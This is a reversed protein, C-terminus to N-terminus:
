GNFEDVLLTRYNLALSVYNALLKWTKKGSLISVISSNVFDRSRFEKLIPCDLIFHKVNESVCLNCLTCNFNNNPFWPKWNLPLMETRAMFIFRIERLTLNDSFYKEGGWETKIEKYIPHFQGLMVSDLLDQKKKSVIYLYLDELAPKVSSVNFSDFQQLNGCQGAFDKIFRFWSHNNNVGIQMMIKSFRNDKLGLTHLIFSWHLKLTFLFLPERGTELLLMYNPTNYPMRFLKKIFFRLLKEVPEFEQFGWVQAAYCMISRAVSDFVRFYSDVNRSQLYFINKYVTNLGLKANALQADLHSGFKGTSTFKVGLYKYESVIEILEGRYYFKFSKKLRGKKRFVMVKSKNLNVRLDWLDCYDSLKDIMQQLILHDSAVFVIDDAYLLMRIWVGNFQFGGVDIYDSLDNVYLTFLLPSLICGQRVGTVTDFCDSYGSKTWVKSRTKKYIAALADLCKTSLGLASLKYILSLRNVTDFAASFDIFFAFVKGRPVSLGDEM